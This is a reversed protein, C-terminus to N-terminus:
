LLTNPQGLKHRYVVDYTVRMARLFRAPDLTLPTFGTRHSFAANGSMNYNAFMATHIKGLMVEDTDNGKRLWVELVIEWEFTEAGIVQLEDAAVEEPGSGIFCAPFAIMDIDVPTSRNIEVHKFGLSEDSIIAQVEALINERITPM